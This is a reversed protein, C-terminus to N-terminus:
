RSRRFTVWCKSPLGDTSVYLDDVEWGAELWAKGQSSGRNNFWYGKRGYEYASTPLTDMIIDNIQQFTLTVLRENSPRKGLYNGLPQYKLM